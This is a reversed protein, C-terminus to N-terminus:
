VKIGKVDRGSRWLSRALRLLQIILYPSVVLIWALPSGDLLGLWVDTVLDWLGGEAEYAGVVQTGVWYVLVPLPLLGFGLLVIAILVEKAFRM